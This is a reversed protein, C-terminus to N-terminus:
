ETGKSPRLCQGPLPEAPSSATAPARRAAPPHQLVASPAANALSIPALVAISILSRKFTLVSLPGSGQAPQLAASTYERAEAIALHIPRFVSSDPTCGPPSEPRQTSRSAPSPFKM